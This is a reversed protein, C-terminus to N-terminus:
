IGKGYHLIRERNFIEMAGLIIFYIGEITLSKRSKKRDFGCNCGEDCCDHDHKDCDCEGECGCTKKEKESM